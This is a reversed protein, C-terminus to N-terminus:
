TPKPPKATWGYFYQAVQEVTSLREADQDPITIGFEEELAMVLEITDLSDAADIEVLDLGPVIEGRSRGAWEAVIRVVRDRVSPPLHNWGPPDLGGPDTM